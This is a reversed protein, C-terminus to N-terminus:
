RRYIMISLPILFLMWLTTGSGTSTQSNIEPGGVFLIKGNVQLDSDGYGGDSIRVMTINRNISNGSSNLLPANGFMIVGPISNKELTYWHPSNNDPTSGYSYINAPSNGSPLILGFEAISGVPFGSLEFTFAENELLIGEPLKEITSLQVSRVNTFSANDDTVLTTYTNNTNPFSVVTNQLQDPIGDNNGDGNNPVANEISNNIGDNDSSAGGTVQIDLQSNVPDDSIISIVGSKESLDAPKFNVVLICFGAAPIAGPTFNNNVNPTTCNDIFQFEDPTQTNFTIASINLTREGENNIRIITQAPNEAPDYVPQVGFNVTDPSASIESAPTKLAVPFTYGYTLIEINFSDAFYGTSAPSFEIQITCQNNLPITTNQCTNNIVTFPATVSLIDSTDIKLEATNYNQIIINRAVTTGVVADDFDIVDTIKFLRDISNIIVLNSKVIDNITSSITYDVLPIAAFDVIDVSNFDDNLNEVPINSILDVTDMGSGLVKGFVTFGEDVTDLNTNNGLNIFWQNSASNIQGGLRAMALTGRTNSLKFENLIPEKTTVLQLGGNYQGNGDYSFSGGNLNEDYTYAGAQIVFGPVNRQILLNDYLNDDVYSLFNSVTGSAVTDFLSIDVPHIVGQFEFNARVVEIAYCATSVAINCVLFTTSITKQLLPKM